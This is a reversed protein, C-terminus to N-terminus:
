LLKDKSTIMNKSGRKSKGCKNCCYRQYVGGNTRCVRTGNKFFKGGCDCHDNVQGPVMISNWEPCYPLIKHYVQEALVVDHKGYKKFKNIRRKFRKWDGQGASQLLDMWWSLDTHIKAGIGLFKAVYDLKYSTLRFHRRAALLIDHHLYGFTDDLGHALLKAKIWKEDFRKSNQGVIVDASDIEDAIAAVLDGDDRWNKEWGDFDTIDLTHVKKNGEWKWQVMFISPDELIMDHSIRQDGIGWSATVLPATEIDIILKKAKNKM